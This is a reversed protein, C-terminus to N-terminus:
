RLIWSVGDYRVIDGPGYGGNIVDIFETVLDSSIMEATPVEAHGQFPPAPREPTGTRTMWEVPMEYSWGMVFRSADLQFLVSISGHDRNLSVYVRNIHAPFAHQRLDNKVTQVLSDIFETGSM